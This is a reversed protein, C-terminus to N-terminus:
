LAPRLKVIHRLGCRLNRTKPVGDHIRVCQSRADAVPSLDIGLKKAVVQPM